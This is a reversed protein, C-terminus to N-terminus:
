GRKRPYPALKAPARGCVSEQGSSTARRGRARLQEDLAEARQQRLLAGHVAAIEEALETVGLALLALLERVLLDDIVHDEQHHRRVVRRRARQGRHHIQERAMRLPLIAHAVFRAREALSMQLVVIEIPEFAEFQSMRSASRRYGGSVEIGRMHM